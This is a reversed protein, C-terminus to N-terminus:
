KYPELKCPNEARSRVIDPGKMSGIVRYFDTLDKAEKATKAKAIYVEQVFQHDWPRIYTPFAKM